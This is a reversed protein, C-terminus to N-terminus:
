FLLYDKFSKKNKPRVMEKEKESLFHYGYLVSSYRDKRGSRPETLKELGTDTFKLELAIIENVLNDIQVYPHQLRAQEEMPLRFYDKINSLYDLSDNNDVLFKVANRKMADRFSRAVNINFEQTAKIAYLKEEAEDIADENLKDYNMFKFAPYVVGREKDHIDRMLADAVTTNGSVDIVIYDCEFDDFLQRIRVGQTSSHGGVMTEIYETYIKYARKESRLSMLTFASADNKTGAMRAVDVSIIRVEDPEKKRYKFDKNGYQEYVDRPYIAKNIQRNDEIDKLQYFASESEGYFMCEMEMNFIIPSFTEEMMEERIDEEVLLGNEVSKQYPFATIGYFSGGIMKSFYTKFMPYSWNHKFYASSLFIQRNKELKKYEKTNYEPLSLYRPQRTAGLFRRLTNQYIKMDIMRFEDLILINARGSRANETATVIKIWSGNLFEVNPDDTNLSTRLKGNNDLESKLIPSMQMLEPIKETVIKMAQGKKGAAVVVKTGPYLICVCVAFLATIFTKGQARSALYMYNKVHFMDHLIIEQFDKLSEIGLYEKVFRHPNERWYAIWLEYQELMHESRTLIYDEVNLKNTNISVFSM